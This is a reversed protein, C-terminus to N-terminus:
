GCSRQLTMQCVVDMTITTRSAHHHYGYADGRVCNQAAVQSTPYAVVSDILLIYQALANMGDLMASEHKCACRRQRTPLSASAIYLNNSCRTPGIDLHLSMLIGSASRRQTSGGPQHNEAGGLQVQGSVAAGLHRHDHGGSGSCGSHRHPYSTLRMQLSCDGAISLLTVLLHRSVHACAIKQYSCICSM